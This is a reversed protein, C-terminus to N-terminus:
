SKTRQRDSNKAGTGGHIRYFAIMKGLAHAAQKSSIKDAIIPKGVARLVVYRSSHSARKKDLAMAIRIGAADLTRLPVQKALRQLLKRYKDLTVTSSVGTIESLEVAALLGLTVAEGHLLRGYGLANEIGHAFTHGLNLRMRLSGEREDRAVIDAKYEVCKVILDQLVKLQSRTPDSLFAAVQNVMSPGILGAYKAMEGIAAMFERPSLTFLFSLDCLVFQPQWFAGLLNKGARHNIGTKGGVAADIMGLLTTSVIGFKIGRLTTAAAYGVLDSTVGGGCVLIFDDRTIKKDLLFEYLGNLTRASKYKEGSPIIFEEHRRHTKKIVYSIRKGHLAFLNADYFVFLRNGAAHKKLLSSLRAPGNNEIVVPYVRDKLKVNVTPM